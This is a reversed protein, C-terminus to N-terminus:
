ELILAQARVLLQAVAAHAELTLADREALTKGATPIPEGAVLAATRGGRVFRSGKPLIDGTGAVALPVIPVGASLALVAAGKRFDRLQGDESRTGEPYFLIDVRDRVQDVARALAAKDRDDGSRTVEINGTARLAPGFLPIRFLESKAVFRIHRPLSHFIMLSDFHSQHNCVFVARPVSALAELGETRVKVGAAGLISRAWQRLVPDPATPQVLSLGAVLPALVATTSVAGFTLVTRTLDRIM